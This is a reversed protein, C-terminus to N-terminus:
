RDELYIFAKAAGTLTLSLHDAVNERVYTISAGAACQDKVYADVDPGSVVEDETAVYAFRPVSSIPTGPRGLIGAELANRIPEAALM